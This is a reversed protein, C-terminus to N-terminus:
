GALAIVPRVTQPEFARLIRRVCAASLPKPILADFGASRAAEVVARTAGGTLLITGRPTGEATIVAKMMRLAEFPTMDDLRDDFFVVDAGAGCGDAVFAKLSGCHAVGYGQEEMLSSLVARCYPDGTVVLCRPKAKAM